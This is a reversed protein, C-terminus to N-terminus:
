TLQDSGILLINKEGDKNQRLIKIHQEGGYWPIQIVMGVHSLMACILRVTIEKIIIRTQYFHSKCIWGCQKKQKYYFILHSNLNVLKYLGISPFAISGVTM